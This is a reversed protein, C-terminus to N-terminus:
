CSYCIHADTLLVSELVTVTVIYMISLFFYKCLCVELDDVSKFSVIAFGDIIDEEYTGAGSRKKRPRSRGRDKGVVNPDKEDEASEDDSKLKELQLQHARERRKRHASHSRKTPETEM